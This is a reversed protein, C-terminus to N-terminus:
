NTCYLVYQTLQHVAKQRRHKPLLKGKFIQRLRSLQLASTMGKRDAYKVLGYQCNKDCEAIGSHLRPMPPMDSPGDAQRDRWRDTVYQYQTMQEPVRSNLLLTSHRVCTLDVHLQVRGHTQDRTGEM